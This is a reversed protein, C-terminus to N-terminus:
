RLLVFTRRSRPDMSVERLASGAMTTSDVGRQVEAKGEQIAIVAKKTETQISRIMAVIEKTAMSSREALKRVEHAVVAFGRGQEGARAADIAADLALLNTQNAIDDIVGIIQGIEDSRKGLEGILLVAILSM